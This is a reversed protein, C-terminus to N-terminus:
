AQLNPEINHILKYMVYTETKNIIQNNIEILYEVFFINKNDVLYIM